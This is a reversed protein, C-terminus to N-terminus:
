EDPIGDLIALATEARFGDPVLELYRQLYDRALDDKEMGHYIEGLMYYPHAFDADVSIAREYYYIAQESDGKRFYAEAMSDYSNPDDPAAEILKSLNEIAEDYAGVGIHCYGLMNYLGNNEPDLEVAKSYAEIAPYYAETEYYASAMRQYAGANEPDSDVVRKAELIADILSSFREMQLGGLGYPFDNRANQILDRLAVADGTRRFVTLGKQFRAAYEMGTGQKREIVLDFGEQAQEFRGSQSLEVSKVFTSFPKWDYGLQSVLLDAHESRVRDAYTSLPYRDVVRAYCDAAKAPDNMQLHVGALEFQYQPAWPRDPYEDLSGTYFTVLSALDGLRRYNALLGSEFTQTWDLALESHVPETLRELASEYVRAAEDWKDQKEYCRGLRDFSFIEWGTDRHKSLINQYVVAAKHYDQKVTYFINAIAWKAAPALQHNPNEYVFIEYAKLAKDYQKKGLLENAHDFVSLSDEDTSGFSVLMFFCVCMM